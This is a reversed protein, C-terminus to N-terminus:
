LPILTGHEAEVADIPIALTARDSGAFLLHTAYFGDERLIGILSGSDGQTSMPGFLAVGEFLVPTDYYGGVKVRVDRARLDGVTVGTTRGSKIYMADMEPESWGALPGM